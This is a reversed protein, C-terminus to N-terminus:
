KICFLTRKPQLNFRIRWIKSITCDKNFSIENFKNVLSKFNIEHILYWSSDIQQTVSTSAPQTDTSAHWEVLLNLHTGVVVLHSVSCRISFIAIQLVLLQVSKRTCYAKTLNQNIQKERSYASDQVWNVDTSSLLLLGPKLQTTNQNQHPNQVCLIQTWCGFM